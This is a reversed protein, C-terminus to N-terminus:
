ATDTTPRSEVLEISRDKDYVSREDHKIEKFYQVLM